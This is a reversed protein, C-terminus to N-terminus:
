LVVVYEVEIIVIHQGESIHFGRITLVVLSKMKVVSSM